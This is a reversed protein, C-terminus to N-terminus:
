WPHHTFRLIGIFFVKKMGYIDAIKGFPILLVAASLLYSTAIWYLPIADMHFETEIAPLVINISSAMFPLLFATFTAIILACKITDSDTCTQMWSNSPLKM